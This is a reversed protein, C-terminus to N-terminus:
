HTVLEGEQEVFALMEEKTFVDEMKLNKTENWQKAELHNQQKMMYICWRVIDSPNKLHDFHQHYGDQLFKNFYLNKPATAIGHVHLRDKEDYEYVWKQISLGRRMAPRIWEDEYITESLLKTSLSNNKVTFGFYYQISM